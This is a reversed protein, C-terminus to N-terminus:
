RPHPTRRVNFRNKPAEAAAGGCMEFSSRFHRTQGFYKNHNYKYWKELYQAGELEKPACVHAKGGYLGPLVKQPRYGHALQVRAM